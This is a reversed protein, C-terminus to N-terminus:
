AAKIEEWLRGCVEMLDEEKMKRAVDIVAVTGIKHGRRMLTKAMGLADQETGKYRAFIYMGNDMYQFGITWDYLEKLQLNIKM